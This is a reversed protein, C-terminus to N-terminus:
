LARVERNDRGKRNSRRISWIPEHERVYDLRAQFWTGSPWVWNHYPLDDVDYCRGTNVTSQTFVSQWVNM